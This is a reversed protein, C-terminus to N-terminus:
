QKTQDNLMVERLPLKKRYCPLFGGDIIMLKYNFCGAWPAPSGPLSLVLCPQAGQRSAGGTLVRGGIKVSM